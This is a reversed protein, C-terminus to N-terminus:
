RCTPSARHRGARETDRGFRLLGGGRGGPAAFGGSAAAAPGGGPLCPLCRNVAEALGAPAQAGTNSSQPYDRLPFATAGVLRQFVYPAANAV